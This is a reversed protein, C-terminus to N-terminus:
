KAENEVSRVSACGNRYCLYRKEDLFSTWFRDKKMIRRKKDNLVHYIASFTLESKRQNIDSKVVARIEIPSWGLLINFCPSFPPRFLRLKWRKKSEDLKFEEIVTDLIMIKVSSCILDHDYVYMHSTFDAEYGVFLSTLFNTKKEYSAVFHYEILSDNLYRLIPYKTKNEALLPPFLLTELIASYEYQLLTEALNSDAHKYREQSANESIESTIRPPLCFFLSEITTMKLYGDSVCLQELFDEIHNEILYTTIVNSLWTDVGLKKLIFLACLYAKRESQSILNARFKM